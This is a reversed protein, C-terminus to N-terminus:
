GHRTVQSSMQFNRDGLCIHTHTHARTHARVSQLLARESELLIDIVRFVVSSMTLAIDGIFTYVGNFLNFASM